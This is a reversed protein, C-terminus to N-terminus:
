DVSNMLWSSYYEYSYYYKANISELFLLFFYLISSVETILLLFSCLFINVKKYNEYTIIAYVELMITYIHDRLSEIVQILFKLTEKRTDEFLNLKRLQKQRVINM